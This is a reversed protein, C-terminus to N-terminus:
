TTTLSQQRFGDWDFGPKTAMIPLCDNMDPNNLIQKLNERAKLINNEKLVQKLNQKPKPANLGTESNEDACAKLANPSNASSEAMPAQAPNPATSSEDMPARPNPAASSEDLPAPQNPPLLAATTSSEDMPAQQNPATTSSEDLPAQQNPATTSSEDLPAQRNPAVPAAATSSEEVPTEPADPIKNNKKQKKSKTAPKQQEAKRKGGKTLKKAAEEQWHLAALTVQSLCVPSKFFSACYQSAAFAERVKQRLAAQEDRLSAYEASALHVPLSEFGVVM